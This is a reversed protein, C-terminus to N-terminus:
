VPVVKTEAPSNLNCLPEEISEVVTFTVPLPLNYKSDALAKTDLAFIVNVPALAFNYTASFLVTLVTEPAPPIWICLSLVRVTLSIELWVPFTLPCPSITIVPDCVIPANISVLSLM